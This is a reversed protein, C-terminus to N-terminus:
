AMLGDPESRGAAARSDRVRTEDGPMCCLRAEPIASASLCAEISRVADREIAIAM